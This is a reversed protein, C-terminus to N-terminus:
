GASILATRLEKLREIAERIRGILEDIIGGVELVFKVIEAQERIPPVSVRFSAL